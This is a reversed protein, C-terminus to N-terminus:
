ELHTRTSSRNSVREETAAERRAPQHDDLAIWRKDGIQTLSKRVDSNATAVRFVGRGNKTVLTNRLHVSENRTQGNAIQVMAIPDDDHPSHHSRHSRVALQNLEGVRCVARDWGCPEAQAGFAEAADPHVKRWGGHPSERPLTILDVEPFFSM